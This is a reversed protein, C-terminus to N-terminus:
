APIAKGEDGGGTKGVVLEGGGGRLLRYIAARATTPLFPHNSKWANERGDM